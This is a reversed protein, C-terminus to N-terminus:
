GVLLVYGGPLRALAQELERVTHDIAHYPISPEPFEHRPRLELRGQWRLEHILQASTLEGPRKPDAALRFFCDALEQLDRDRALLDAALSLPGPEAPKPLSYGLDLQCAGAFARFEADDLGSARQLQEWIGQWRPPIPQVPDEVARRRWCEDLFLALSPDSKHSAYDNSLLHFIVQRPADRQQLTKWGAALERVLPQKAGTPSLLRHLGFSGPYSSWRVQYADLRSPTLLQFDDVAGAEPDAIRM